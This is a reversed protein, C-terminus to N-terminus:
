VDKEGMLKLWRESKELKRLDSVVNMAIQFPTYYSTNYEYVIFGCAKLFDANIKFLELDGIIDFPPENTLKCRVELDAPEATLLIIVNNKYWDLEYMYGRKFKNSYCIQTLIGRDTIVYKHNALQELYKHLTNKGTKDVGEITVIM